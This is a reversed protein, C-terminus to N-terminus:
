LDVDTDGPWAIASAHFRSDSSFWSRHRLSSASIFRRYSSALFFCCVWDFIHIVVNGTYFITLM